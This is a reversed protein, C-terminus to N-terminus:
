REEVILERRGMTAGYQYVTGDSKWQIKITHLGASLVGKYVIVGPNNYGGDSNNVVSFRENVGDINLAIFSKDAYVTAKFPATFTIKVNKGSSIFKVSMDTMDIYSTSTTSIDTIGLASVINGVNGSIINGVNVIDGSINNYFYGILRYYTIGTPATSSTSIKITFTTADTDAVAYVYYQTSVAEAGTDIDSWTVTTSTTNARYRVVTGASNPISIQGSLVSLQSSSSYLVDCNNRYGIVLRDQANNNTAILTDIDSPSASGTPQTKDWQDAGYSLRNVFLLFLVIMLLVKQM